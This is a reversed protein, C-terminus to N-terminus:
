TISAASVGLLTKARDSWYEAESTDLTDQSFGCAEFATLVEAVNEIPPLSVAEMIKAVPVVVKPAPPAPPTHPQNTSGNFNRVHTHSRPATTNSFNGNGDDVYANEIEAFQRRRRERRSIMPSQRAVDSDWLNAQAETYEVEIEAMSKGSENFNDEVCAKLLKYELEETKFLQQGRGLLDRFHELQDADQESLGYFHPSLPRLRNFAEYVPDFPEVVTRPAKKTAPEEVVIAPNYNPAWATKKGSKSWSKGWMSNDNSLWLGEYRLGCHENIINVHGENDLFVMKNSPGIVESIMNQFAKDALVAPKTNVMPRIYQAFHWSDSMAPNTVQYGHLVGNHMMWVNKTVKFPHCNETNIKGHTAYRTHIVMELHKYKEVTQLYTNEAFGKFVQLFGDEVFMIGWGMPNDIYSQKLLPLPVTKNAPKVIILCV